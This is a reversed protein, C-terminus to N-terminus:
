KFVEEIAMNVLLPDWNHRVLEEKVACSAYGKSKKEAVFAFLIDLNYKQIESLVTKLDKEKDGKNLFYAILAFALPISLLILSGFFLHPLSQGLIYASAGWFVDFLYHAVILPIIGYRLFIFGMVCGLLSVEIIRFWVPFIAYACHGLGWIFSTLVVATISNKLYKRILTIGFLRFTIEENFSATLGVIFAGLLPLYASSFQTLKLWERWVGLYKQGLYFIGAQLGLLVLVVLYGLMIARSLRRNFFNSMIYPSFSGFKNQPFLEKFLSEGALAPIIFGIVLFINSLVARSIYLGLFSALPTSTSYFM